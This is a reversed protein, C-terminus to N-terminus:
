EKIILFAGANTNQAITYYKKNYLLKHRFSQGVREQVEYFKLPNKQIDKVFASAQNPTLEESDYYFKMNVSEENVKATFEKFQQSM